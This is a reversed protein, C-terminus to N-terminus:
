VSPSPFDILWFRYSGDPLKKKSVAFGVRSADRKRWRAFYVYVHNEIEASVDFSDGVQMASFTDYFKNNHKKLPRPRKVNKQINFM